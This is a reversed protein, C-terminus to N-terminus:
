QEDHEEGPRAATVATPRRDAATRQGPLPTRPTEVPVFFGKVAPALLGIRKPRKPVAWGAYPLPRGDRSGLPQHIEQYGGDPGRVLEGTEIGHGLVERDHQQLSLCLRRTLYYALPPALLLGIRGAWVMANLSIHFTEAIIDNAASVTLVLYFTVAMAALATRDPVDRPRQLLNHHARDHQRWESVFPYALALLTLVGPLVVGPWFPAPVTHHATRIEWPPFLRLGGDLFMVYWDPQSGASVVAAEYPGFAWIPNIQFVGGLLAILGFVSLALGTSRAAFGPVMREGVVNRETHGPRPWQTHKQKVILALHAAVLAALLGPILLVHAIYLRGLVLHGPFEGGFLTTALWSGVVPISLLIAEAIRLGTGSLGDDPLSYGCFGEVFGLWFLLLGIVWNLERPRRFAGTLFIRLMHVVIAALFLDAAWHHMQRILLGGRVEFSIRLTSAYAASMPLDRLPVYPGHYRVATDSPDFYLTLFTGTLLLMVFSYLAIEGLMFSWHDPFVKNM